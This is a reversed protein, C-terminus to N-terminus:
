LHGEKGFIEAVILWDSKTPKMQRTPLYETKTGQSLISYMKSKSPALIQYTRTPLRTIQKISTARRSSERKTSEHGSFNLKGRIQLRSRITSYNTRLARRIKKYAEKKDQEFYSGDSNRSLFRGRPDLKQIEDYVERVIGEGNKAESAIM